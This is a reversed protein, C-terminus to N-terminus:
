LDLSAYCYGIFEDIGGDRMEKIANRKKSHIKMKDVDESSLKGYLYKYPVGCITDNNEDINKSFLIITHSNYDLNINYKQFLSKVSNKIGVISLGTGGLFLAFGMLTGLLPGGALLLALYGGGMQLIGNTCRKKDKVMKKDIQYFLDEDDIIIWKVKKKTYEGLEGKYKVFMPTLKTENKVEDKFCESYDKM